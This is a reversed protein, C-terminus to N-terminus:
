PLAEQLKGFSEASRELGEDLEAAIEDIESLL